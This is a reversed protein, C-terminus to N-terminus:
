KSKCGRKPRAGRRIAIAFHRLRLLSANCHAASGNSADKVVQLFRCPSPCTERAIRYSFRQFNCDRYRRQIARHRFKRRACRIHVSDTDGVSQEMAFLRYKGVSVRNDDLEAGM